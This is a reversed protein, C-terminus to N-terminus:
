LQSIADQVSSLACSAGLVFVSDDLVSFGLKASNSSVMIIRTSKVVEKAVDVLRNITKMEAQIQQQHGSGLNGTKSIDIGLMTSSALGANLDSLAFVALWPSEEFSRVSCDGLLRNLKKMTALDNAINYVLVTFKAITDVASVTLGVAMAAGTPAFVDSVVKAVLVVAEKGTNIKAKSQMTECLQSLSACFMQVNDNRPLSFAVHATVTKMSSAKYWKQIEAVLAQTQMVSGLIPASSAVFDSVLKPALQLLVSWVEDRLPALEDSLLSLVYDKAQGAGTITGSNKAASTSLRRAEGLADTVDTGGTINEYIHEASTRYRIMRGKGWVKFEKDRESLSPAADVGKPKVQILVGGDERAANYPNVLHPATYCAECWSLSPNKPNDYTFSLVFKGCNACKAM